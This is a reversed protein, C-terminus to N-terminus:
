GSVGQFCHIPRGNEVERTRAALANLHTQGIRLTSCCEMSFFERALATVQQETDQSVNKRGHRRHTEANEPVTERSSVKGITWAKWEKKRKKTRKM